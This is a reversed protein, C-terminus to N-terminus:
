VKSSHVCHQEVTKNADFIPNTEGPRPQSSCTKGQGDISEIRHKMLDTFMPWRYFVRLQNITSAGGPTVKFGTSMSTGPPPSRCQKRFTPSPQILRCTWSCTPVAPAPMFLRGCVTQKLKDPARHTAATIEGTRLQRAIDDTANSMVQQATFSLSVEIIAFILLFFPLAILAFEIAVTGRRNACFRALALAHEGATLGEATHTQDDSPKDTNGSCPKGRAM